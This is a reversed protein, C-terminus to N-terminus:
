GAVKAQRHGAEGRKAHAGSTEELWVKESPSELGAKGHSKRDQQNKVLIRANVLFDWTKDVIAIQAADSYEAEIVKVLLKM